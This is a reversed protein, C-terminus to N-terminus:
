LLICLYIYTQTCIIYKCNDIAQSLCMLLAVALAAKGTMAVAHPNTYHAVRVLVTPTYTSIRPGTVNEALRRGQRFAVYFVMLVFVRASPQHPLLETTSKGGSPLDKEGGGGCGSGRIHWVNRVGDRGRMRRWCACVKVVAAVVVGQGNYLTIIIYIIIRDRPPAQKSTHLAIIATATTAVATSAVHVLIGIKYLQMIRVVSTPSYYVVTIYNNHM